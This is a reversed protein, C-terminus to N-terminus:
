RQLLIEGKMPSSATIAFPGRITFNDPRMTTAISWYAVADSAAVIRLGSSTQTRTKETRRLSNTVNPAGRDRLHEHSHKDNIM